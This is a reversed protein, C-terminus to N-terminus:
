IRVIAQYGRFGIRRHNTEPPLLLSNDGALSDACLWGDSAGM